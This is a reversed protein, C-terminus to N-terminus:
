ASPPLVLKSNDPDWRWLNENTVHTGGWWRDVRNEAAFDAEGDLLTRGFKTLSLGSRKYNAYREADDHLELSFPGDRLGAVAPVKCTALEDLLRGVMWYCGGGGSGYVVQGLLALPATAGNAIGALVQTQTHSLGSGLKPLEGLLRRGTERLFTLGLSQGSQMLAHWAVPTSDCYARWALLAIEYQEATVPQADERWEAVEEPTCRGLEKASQFLALPRDLSKWWSLLQVMQLQANPTPDIWFEVDFESRRAAVKELVQGTDEELESEWDEPYNWLERRRAFFSKPDTIAPVPGEILSYYLWIVRDAIRAQKLAGAGSDRTTVILKRM